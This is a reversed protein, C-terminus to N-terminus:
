STGGSKVMSDLTRGFIHQGEMHRTGYELHAAYDVDSVIEAGDGDERVEISDRYRGTDVPAISRAFDRGREATDQVAQQVTEHRTLAKIAAQDIQISTIGDM